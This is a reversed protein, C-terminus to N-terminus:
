ARCCRAILRPSNRGVSSGYYDGYLKEIRLGNRELLLQLERPFMWTLHFKVRQHHARTGADFWHYHFTVENVQDAERKISVTTFVTRDFQPVYFVHPDINDLRDPPLLTLDPYFIDLWFWGRPKLHDLVTQLLREQEALTTFALFTNFFLCVADFKENLRLDLINGHLLQLQRERIGVADRKRQAIDLMALDYDVGVVRHGAQAIPIAARATGVALELVSLKKRPLQKLFFPVDRQLMAKSEYEADYYAAIAKYSKMRETRETLFFPSM